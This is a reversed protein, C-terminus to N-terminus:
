NLERPKGTKPDFTGFTRRNGCEQCRFILRGTKNGYKDANIIAQHFDHPTPHGVRFNQV